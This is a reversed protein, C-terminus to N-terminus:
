GRPPHRWVNAVPVCDTAGAASYGVRGVLKRALAEFDMWRPDLHNADGIVAHGVEHVLVTAEVCTITQGADLTTLRINGDYCGTSPGLGPCDVHAQGQFVITKGSMRSWDGGWYGLAADITSEVRAPFDASRTFAADTQVVIATNRVVLDPTSLTESPAGGCAALAVLPLWTWATRSIRGMAGDM